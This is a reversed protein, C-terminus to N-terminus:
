SYTLLLPLYMVSHVSSFQLLRYVIAFAKPVFYSFMAFLNTIFWIDGLLVPRIM